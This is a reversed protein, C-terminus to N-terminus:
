PTFVPAPEDHDDLEVLALVAAHGAAIALNAAVAERMSPAIPLRVQTSVADIYAAWEQTEDNMADSSDTATMRAAYPLRTEHWCM